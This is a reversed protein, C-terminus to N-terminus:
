GIEGEVNDYFLSFFPEYLFHVKENLKEDGLLQQMNM